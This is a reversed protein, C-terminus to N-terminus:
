GISGPLEVINGTVTKYNQFFSHAISCIESTTVLKTTDEIWERNAASDIVYPAVANASLNIKKGEFSLTKVLFNLAHKSINYAARNEEPYLSSQASTFCISSGNSNQVLKSFYKSILFATCLNINLMKLFDAYKTDAISEGGIYAGITDFLFYNAGEKRVVNQFAKAVNEEKAMDSILIMEYKKNSSKLDYKERTFFYYQDYDQNLFFDVATRGLAGSAGFLLFVKESKM